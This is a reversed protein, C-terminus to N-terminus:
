AHGGGIRGGVVQAGHVRALHERLEPVALVQGFLRNAAALLESSMGAPAVVGTWVAVDFGPVVEAIAPVDPLQAVRNATSVAIPRARGDQLFLLASSISTFSLDVDGRV